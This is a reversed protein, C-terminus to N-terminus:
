LLLLGNARNCAFGIPKYQGSLQGPLAHTQGNRVKFISYRLHGAAWVAAPHNKAASEWNIHFLSALKKAEVNRRLM